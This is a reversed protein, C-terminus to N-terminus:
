RAKKLYAINTNKITKDSFFITKAPEPVYIDTLLIGRDILKLIEERDKAFFVNLGTSEYCLGRALLETYKTNDFYLIININCM